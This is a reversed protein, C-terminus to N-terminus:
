SLDGKAKAIKAEADEYKKKWDVPPPPPPLQDFPINFAKCIGRAIANCVRDTNALIVKDHPDLVEGLEILGCATASSLRNWMYYQTMDITVKNPRDVIGTDNTYPVFYSNKISDVIRKSEVNSDDYAPDPASICGGGDLPSNWDGHIALFFNFDQSIQSDPPNADVIYLQFGKSILIESLRLTVRWNLEQEGATGTAGTLVGRHGSQLCIKLM